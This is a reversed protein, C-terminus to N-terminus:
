SSTLKESPFVFGRPMVGVIRFGYHSVPDLEVTRGLINPDGLFRGQWVPYTVIVPVTLVDREFDGPEFGGILPRVGLVDFVNPQVSVVGADYDNVGSGFGVSPRASFGTFLAGPTADSWDQLDKTSVAELQYGAPPPLGKFGVRVSFLRDSAPLAIPKFLVGDVVAFVTTALAMGLAIVGIVTSSYWPAHRLSSLDSSPRQASLAAAPITAPM